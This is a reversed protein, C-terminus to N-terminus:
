KEKEEEKKKKDEKITFTDEFVDDSDALKSMRDFGSSEKKGM